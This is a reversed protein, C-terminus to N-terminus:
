YLDVNRKFLSFEFETGNEEEEGLSQKQEFIEPIEFFPFFTDCDYTNKIRTLYIGELNPLSLAQKFISGGGIIFIKEAHEAEDIAEELSSFVDAGDAKFEPNKSLIMNRRGPLPRFKEPLSDWTKRGMIVTNHLEPDHTQTTVKAFHKLEKSFHWPMTGGKGIGNEADVAAIIYIM